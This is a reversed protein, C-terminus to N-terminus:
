KRLTSDCPPCPNGPFVCVPPKRCYIGCCWAACPPTFCPSPKRCYSDCTTDFGCYPACPAPKCTHPSFFCRYDPWWNCNVAPAPQLEPLPQIDPALKVISQGAPPDAHALRGGSLQVSALALLLLLPSFFRVMRM